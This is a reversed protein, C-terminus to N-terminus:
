SRQSHARLQVELFFSVLDREKSGMTIYRFVRGFPWVRTSPPTTMEWYGLETPAIDTWEAGLTRILIEALLAGHKEVFHQETANKLMGEPFRERLRAQILEISHLDTKLITGFENKYQRGLERAWHTFKIRADLVNTPLASGEDSIEGHLGPPLSLNEVIEPAARLSRSPIRKPLTLNASVRIHREDESAM